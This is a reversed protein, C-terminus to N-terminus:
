WVADSRCKCGGSLVDIKGARACIAVSEDVIRGENDIGGAGGTMRFSRQDSVPFMEGGGIRDECLVRGQTLLLVAGDDIQRHTVNESSVDSNCQRQYRPQHRMKAFIRFIKRCCQELDPWRHHESHGAIQLFEGGVYQDADEIRAPKLACGVIGSHM